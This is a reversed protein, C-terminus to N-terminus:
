YEFDKEGKLTNRMLQQFNARQRYRAMRVYLNQSSCTMFTILDETRTRGCFISSDIDMSLSMTRLEAFLVRVRQLCCAGRSRCQAIDRRMRTEITTEVVTSRCCPSSRNFFSFFDQVIRSEGGKTPLVADFLETAHPGLSISEKMCLRRCWSDASSIDM